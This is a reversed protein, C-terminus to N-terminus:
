GPPPSMRADARSWYFVLLLATYVSALTYIASPIAVAPRNEFLRLAIVTGLGANQMGVVLTLARTMPEPLRLLKGGYYGAAYGLVNVLLLATVLGANFVFFERNKAAVCAIIWVITLNAVAPAFRGVVRQAAPWTRAMLHGGIVPLVVMWCLQWAEKVPDISESEGLFLRLALPVVLPALLTSCTTLSVAYSVNGRAALTLVNSAMADPVCGVLILGLRADADLGLLWGMSWGLFPMSTYQISTGALVMPWRRRVQRIEDVPLMWGIAFMTVAFLYNLHRTGALFPDNLGPFWDPWFYAVLSAVTLWVILLRDFM